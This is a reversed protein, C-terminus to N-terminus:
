FNNEQSYPVVAFSTPCDGVSNESSQDGGEQDVTPSTDHNFNSLHSTSKGDVTSKRQGEAEDDGGADYVYLNEANEGARNRQGEAEDDGGADYDYLNGVNEGARNRQGEAEDDGGVDYDYLNGVIEVDRNDMEYFDVSDATPDTM